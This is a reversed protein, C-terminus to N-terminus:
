THQVDPKYQIDVEADPEDAPQSVPKVFLFYLVPIIFLTLVMSVILGSALVSGLPAWLPSKGAIMPIVGVAAAASTLFIPRMRRKAAALAAARITYDHDRILEDAYDVLIIGNRVVIGILSIIGMFATFGM